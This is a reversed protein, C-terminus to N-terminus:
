RKVERLIPDEAIQELVPPNHLLHGSADPGLVSALDFRFGDIHCHMVWHRLCDVIMSRVVPHNCDLTNGCGTYDLYRRKDPALLYYISNDLGRFSYTPGTENGEATHNFVIDLIVEIGAKHPERVMTKFARLVDTSRNPDAYGAM